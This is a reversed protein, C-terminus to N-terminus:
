TESVIDTSNKQHLNKEGNINGHTMRQLNENMVDQLQEWDNYAEPSLPLHFLEMLDTTSCFETVSSDEKVAYSYLCPYNNQMIGHNWDDKWFLASTGQGVTCEAVGRYLPSLKMISRWWFSGCKDSAHPISNQYYSSWILDVWQLDKKNYFKDLYKLLLAQNQTKMHTIGLGGKDKPKCVMDWAALSFCKDAGDDSKKAWLCRRRIKEIQEMTKPNIEISCMTYMAISSLIANVYALKGAYSLLLTSTTVKREIRDVLPMLDTVTPKTTGM